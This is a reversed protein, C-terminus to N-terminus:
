ARLELSPADPVMFAPLFFVAVEQTMAVLVAESEAPPNGWVLGVHRPQLIDWLQDAAVGITLPTESAM